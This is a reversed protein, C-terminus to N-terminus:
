VPGARQPLQVRMARPLHRNLAMLIFHVAAFVWRAYITRRDSSANRRPYM